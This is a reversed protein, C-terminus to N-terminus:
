NRRYPNSGALFSSSSASLRRLDNNTYTINQDLRQNVTPVLLSKALNQNETTLDKQKKNLYVNERELKEKSERMFELERALERLNESLRAAKALLSENEITLDAILKQQDSNNDQEVKLIQEHQQKVKKIEQKLM